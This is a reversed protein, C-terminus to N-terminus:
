LEQGDKRAIEDLEARLTWIAESVGVQTMAIYEVIREVQAFSYTQALAFRREGEDHTRECNCRM